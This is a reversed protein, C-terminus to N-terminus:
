SKFSIWQLIENKVNSISLIRVSIIFIENRDVRHQQVNQWDGVHRTTWCPGYVLQGIILNRITFLKFDSGEDVLRAKLCTQCTVFGTVMIWYHHLHVIRMCSTRGMHCSSWGAMGDHSVSSHNAQTRSLAFSVGNLLSHSVMRRAHLTNPSPGSM